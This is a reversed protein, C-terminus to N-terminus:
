SPLDVATFIFKGSPAVLAVSVSRISFCSRGMVSCPWSSVIGVPGYSILVTATEKGDVFFQFCAGPLRTQRRDMVVSIVPLGTKLCAAFPCQYFSRSAGHPPVPEVPDNRPM